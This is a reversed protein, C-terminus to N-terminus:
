GKARLATLIKQGLNLGRNTKLARQLVEDREETDIDLSVALQEQEAAQRQAVAANAAMALEGLELKGKHGGSYSNRYREM